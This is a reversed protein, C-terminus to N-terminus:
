PADEEENQRRIEEALEPNCVECGDGVLRARLSYNCVANFEANFKFNGTTDQPILMESREEIAKAFRNLANMGAPDGYMAHDAIASKRAEEIIRKREAAKSAQWSARWIGLLQQTQPNLYLLHLPHTSLDINHTRGYVEFALHEADNERM